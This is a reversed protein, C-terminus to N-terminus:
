IQNRHSNQLFYLVFLQQATFFCALEEITNSIHYERLLVSLTPAANLAIGAEGAAIDGTQSIFLTGYLDFIVARIGTIREMQPVVGTPLPRMEKLSERMIKSVTM